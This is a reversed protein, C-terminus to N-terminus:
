YKKRQSKKRKQLTKRKTNKKSKKGGLKELHEYGLVKDRFFNHIRKCKENEELSSASCQLINKYYEKLADVFDERDYQNTLNNYYNEFDEPINLNYEQPKRNLAMYGRKANENFMREPLFNERRLLAQGRMATDLFPLRPRKIQVGSEFPKKTVPIFEQITNYAAKGVNKALRSYKERMSEERFDPNPVRYSLTEQM